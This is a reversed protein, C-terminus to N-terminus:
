RIVCGPFDSNLNYGSFDYFEAFIACIAWNTGTTDLIRFDAQKEVRHKVWHMDNPLITGRMHKKGFDSQKM